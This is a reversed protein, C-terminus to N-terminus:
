KGLVSPDIGAEQLLRQTEADESSSAEIATRYATILAADDQALNMGSRASSKIFDLLKNGYEIQRALVRPSSMFKAVQGAGAGAAAGGPGGILTGLAAGGLAPGIKQTTSTKAAYGLFAKASEINLLKQVRDEGILEALTQVEDKLSQFSGSKSVLKKVFADVENPNKSGAVKRLLKVQDAYKAFQTNMQEFQKGVGHDAFSQGIKEFMPNTVQGMKQKLADTVPSGEAVQDFAERLSKRLEIAKKAGSKGSLTGINSYLNIVRAMQRTADAADGPLMKPIQKEPVQFIKALEMDNLIELNGKDDLKGIGSEVLDMKSQDMISKIDVSFNDPTTKLLEGLNERYRGQLADHSDRAMGKLIMNQKRALPASAELPSQGPSLKAMGERLEGMVEKPADLARRISQVPQGNLGATTHSILEKATNSANGNVWEMAKMLGKMTPKAALAVTEGGVGLLAEWGIDALQEEPTAEYTDALRGLSTRAAELAGSALGAGAAGGVPGGVLGGGAAGLVGAAIQAGMPVMDIVDGALEAKVKPDVPILNGMGHPLVASAIAKTIEWPDSTGLGTPDVNYWAGDKKVKFNDGELRVDEYKQKLFKLNGAKNGLAMKFRDTLDLPSQNIAFEPASGNAYDELVQLGLQAPDVFEEDAPSLGAAAPDVFGEEPAAGQEPAAAGEAFPAGPMANAAQSTVQGAKPVKTDGPVENIGQGVVDINSNDIPKAM